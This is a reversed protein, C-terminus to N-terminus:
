LSFRIKPGNKAKRGFAFVATEGYNRDPGAGNAGWIMKAFSLWGADMPQTARDERTRRKDRMPLMEM